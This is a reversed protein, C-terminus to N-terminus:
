CGGGKKKPILEAQVAWRGSSKKKGVVFRYGNVSSDTLRFESFARPSMLRKHKYCKGSWSTGVRRRVGKNVVVKKGSRYSRVHQRLKRRTVM